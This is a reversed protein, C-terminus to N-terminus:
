RSEGDVPKTSGLAANTADIRTPGPACHAELPRERMARGYQTGAQSLQGTAIDIAAALRRERDQTSEALQEAKKTADREAAVEARLPATWARKLQWFNVAVSLALLVALIILYQSAAWVASLRATISM